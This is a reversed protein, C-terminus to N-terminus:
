ATSVTITRTTTTTTTAPVIGELRLYYSNVVMWFYVELAWTLLMWFANGPTSFFLGIIIILEVVLWILKGWLYYEIWKAKEKYAGLILYIALVFLVIHVLYVFFSSGGALLNTIVTGLANIALFVGIIISGLRLDFMFCCFEFQPFREFLTM